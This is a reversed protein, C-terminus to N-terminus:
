EETEGPLAIGHSGLESQRYAILWNLAEVGLKLADLTDPPMKKDVERINLVLIEKAKELKM